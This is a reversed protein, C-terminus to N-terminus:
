LLHIAISETISVIRKYSRFIITQAQISLGMKLFIEVEQQYWCNFIVFDIRYIYKVINVSFIM